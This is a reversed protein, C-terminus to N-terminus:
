SDVSRRRTSVHYLVGGIVLSFGGLEIGSTTDAGTDPLAAVAMAVATHETEAVDPDPTDTLDPSAQESTEEAYAREVMSCRARDDEPRDGAASFDATGCVTPDWTRPSEFVDVDGDAPQQEPTDDDEEDDIDSPEPDAPVAVPEDAVAHASGPGISVLAVAGLALAPFRTNRM